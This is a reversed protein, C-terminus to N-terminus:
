ACLYLEIKESIQILEASSHWAANLNEAKEKHEDPYEHAFNNRIERINQWRHTKLLQKKEMFVLRERTSLRRAPSEDEDYLMVTYFMTNGILDQLDSFRIRFADFFMLQENSYNEPDFNLIDLPMWKQIYSHAQTLRKCLKKMRIINSKKLEQNFMM